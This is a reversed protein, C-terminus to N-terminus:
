RRAVVSAADSSQAPGWHRPFNRSFTKLTFLVLVHRSDQARLGCERVARDLNEEHLGQRVLERWQAIRRGLHDPATELCNAKPSSRLSRTGWRKM